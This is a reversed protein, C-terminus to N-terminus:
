IEVCHSDQRHLHKKSMLSFVSYYCYGMICQQTSFCCGAQFMSLHFVFFTAVLVSFFDSSFMRLHGNFFLISKPLCAVEERIKVKLQLLCTQFSPTNHTWTQLDPPTKPELFEVSLPVYCLSSPIM